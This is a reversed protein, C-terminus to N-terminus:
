IHRAYRPFDGLMGQLDPWAGSRNPLAQAAKILLLPQGDALRDCSKQRSFEDLLYIVGLPQGIGNKNSFLTPFPSHTNVVRTEVLRAWLVWKRQRAYVLYDVRGRPAFGKAEKIRVRPVMLDRHLLGVLEHSGEDGGESGVAVDGHWKTLLVCPGRVL